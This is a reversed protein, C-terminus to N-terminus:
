LKISKKIGCVKLAHQLEHVYECWAFEIINNGAQISLYNNNFYVCHGSNSQGMYYGYDQNKEFGNKELVDKTLPIPELENDYYRAGKVGVLSVYMDDSNSFGIESVRAINSKIGCALKGGNPNTKIWDGIRLNGVYVM